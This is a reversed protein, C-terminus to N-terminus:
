AKNRENSKTNGGGYARDNRDCLPLRVIHFVQQTHEKMVRQTEKVMHEIMETVYRYGSLTSCKNITSMWADCGYRSLYHNEDKRHDKRVCSPVSGENEQQVAKHWEKIHGDSV